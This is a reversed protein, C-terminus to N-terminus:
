AQKVAHVEGFQIVIETFKEPKELHVAHGADVKIMKGNPLLSAAHNADEDSMAGLLIHDEDYKWNAHILVTPVEVRALTEAHDFNKHWSGDYFMAGFRPDYVDIGKLMMRMVPPLFFVEVPKDPRHQKRFQVFDYIMKQFDDPFFDMLRSHLLYHNLFNQEGSELFGHAMDPMDWGFTEKMRPYESSFLPPDEPIIGIINDPANAGLWVSILGGSSNGSVLTPEGIVQEIFAAIDTGIAEVNYREPDTSTKGHGHCDVAFVHFHKSLEPLVKYYSEWLVLQGHILLLPTGNKPGEVYNLTTGNIDATKEQFGSEWVKKLGPTAFNLAVQRVILVIVSVLAIAAGVLGIVFTVFRRLRM